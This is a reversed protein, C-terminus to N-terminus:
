FQLGYLISVHGPLVTVSLSRAREHREDYRPAAVTLAYLGFGILGTTAAGFAFAWSRNRYFDDQREGLYDGDIRGNTMRPREADDYAHKTEITAYVTAAAAVASTGVAAWGLVRWPNTGNSAPTAPEAPLPSPQKVDSQTAKVPEQTVSPAHRPCETRLVAVYTKADEARGGEKVEVLYREYYDLATSCEKMERYLQALNFLLNPSRTADYCETLLHAAGRLDGESYAVQAQAYRQEVEDNSL